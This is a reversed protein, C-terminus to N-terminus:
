RRKLSDRMRENLVKFAEVLQNCAARPAECLVSMKIDLGSHGQVLIRKVVSPYAPDGPPAFSWLTYSDRDSAITWGNEVSVAIHGKSLIADRAASVSAYGVEFEQAEVEHPIQAFVPSQFSFLMLLVTRLTRQM